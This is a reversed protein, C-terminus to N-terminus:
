ICNYFAASGISTVSNPITVSTLSSCDWFAQNGISTVSNPIDISTLSSCDQFAWNGISTVSYNVGNFMVRAPIEVDTASEDCDSVKMTREGESIIEFTLPFYTLSNGLYVDICEFHLWDTYILWSVYNTFSGCLINLGKTEPTSHFVRNGLLSPATEALCTISTLSWCYAFAFNGISTVSNPITVSTLSSCNFFADDGISTVTYTIGGYSVTSPIIATTISSNADNVEVEAPNTSTVQYQLSDIWFTTGVQAMIVNACLLTCIFFLLRKM